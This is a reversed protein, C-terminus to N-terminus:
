EHEKLQGAIKRLRLKDINEQMIEDLSWNFFGCLRAYYWLVDGMEERIKCILDHNSVNEYVNYDMGPGNRIIKKVNNVLEGAEGIFAIGLYSLESVKGTNSEPYVATDDTKALYEAFSMHDIKNTIATTM